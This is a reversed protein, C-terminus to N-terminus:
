FLIRDGHSLAQLAMLLCQVLLGEQCVESARVAQAAHPQPMLRNQGVTVAAPMTRNSRSRRLGLKLDCFCAAGSTGQM